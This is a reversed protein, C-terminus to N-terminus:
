VYGPCIVSDDIDSGLPPVAKSLLTLNYQGEKSLKGEPAHLAHRKIFSIVTEPNVHNMSLRCGWSLLTLPRELPLNNSASIIHKRICDKVISQLENVIFPHTCPHYLMVIAGHELNHLWRQPPVFKYEGFVPWLPRHYGYTPIDKNYYIKDTMCFHKAIYNDPIDECEEISEIGQLIPIPNKPNYCTYNVPSGDWDMHLNDIANDCNDNTIGMKVGHKKDSLGLSHLDLQKSKEINMVKQIKHNLINRNWISHFLNEPNFTFPYSGPIIILLVALLTTM